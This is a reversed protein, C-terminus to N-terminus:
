PDETAESASYESPEGADAFPLGGMVDEGLGAANLTSTLNTMFMMAVVDTETINRPNQGVPQEEGRAQRGLQDALRARIKDEFAQFDQMKQKGEAMSNNIYKLVEVYITSAVTHINM